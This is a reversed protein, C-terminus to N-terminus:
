KNFKVNLSIEEVWDNNAAVPNEWSVAKTYHRIAPILVGDIEEYQIKMILPDIINFDMVTFLFFDILNTEQNVFLLYKDSVDGINEGYTLELKHYKQNNSSHEGLYKYNAGQDLLKFMMAFWYYNTKRLFDAKKVAKPDLFITDNQYVITKNGDYIQKIIGAKLDPALKDHLLYRASSKEGDFVYDEESLDVEGAPTRYLYTYSVGNKDYFKNSGGNAAVVKKIIEKAYSTNDEAFSFTLPFLLTLVLLTKNM